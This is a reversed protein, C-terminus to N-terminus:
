LNPVSTRKQEEVRRGTEQVRRASKGTVSDLQNFVTRKFETMEIALKKLDEVPDPFVRLVLNKGAEVLESGVSSKTLREIQAIAQLAHIRMEARAQINAFQYWYRDFDTIESSGALSNIRAKALLIRATDGIYNEPSPLPLTTPPPVMLATCNWSGGSAGVKTVMLQAMADIVTVTTPADELSLAAV